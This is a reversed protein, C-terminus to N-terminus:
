TQRIIGLYRVALHAAWSVRLVPICRFDRATMTMPMTAATAIAAIAKPGSPRRSREFGPDFGFWGPFPVPVKGVANSTGVQCLPSEHVYPTFPDELSM